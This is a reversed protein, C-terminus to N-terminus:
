ANDEDVNFGGKPWWSPRPFTMGRRKCIDLFGDTPVSENSVEKLMKLADLVTFKLHGEESFSGGSRVRKAPSENDTEAHGCITSPLVRRRCREQGDVADGTSVQRLTETTEAFEGDPLKEAGNSELENGAGVRENIAGDDAEIGPQFELKRKAESEGIEHNQRSGSGQSYPTVVRESESEPTSKASNRIPTKSKRLPSPEHLGEESVQFGLSESGGRSPSANSQSHVVRETLQIESFGLDSDVGLEVTALGADDKSGVDVVETLDEGDGASEGHERAAPPRQEESSLSTSYEPPTQFVDCPTGNDRLEPSEPPSVMVIGNSEVPFGGDDSDSSGGDAAGPDYPEPAFPCRRLHDEQSASVHCHRILWAWHDDDDGDGGGAGGGNHDM